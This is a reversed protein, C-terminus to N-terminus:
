KRPTIDEIDQAKEKDLPLRVLERPTAFDIKNLDFKRVRRNHQTHYYIVRNKTDNCTTWQTASRM